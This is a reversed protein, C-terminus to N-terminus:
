VGRAESSAVVTNSLAIEMKVLNGTNTGGWANPQTVCDGLKEGQWVFRGKNTNRRTYYDYVRQAVAQGIAPSVLTADTVEVVNQKDTATVDPNTVSFVETTERYKVGDIEENGSDDQVYTHATVRVETTIAETDVTVGLFIRETGMEAPESPASFVRIGATGDTAACVGWAFLVQQIAERRSCPLIAGTLSMDEATVDLTFDEGVIEGLLEVASKNNYIGGAFTSEGLIGFADHCKIEYMRDSVRSSSEIYYVGILRDDNYAEVPQKLQFLYDVDARSDLTWNMTSVALESAILDMESVISVQRLETMGFTRYVGFLIQDLKAYRYPLNTAKLTIVVKDYSLVPHQCFYTAANPVFDVDAKLASQQYWKVNVATCHDGTAADFVLTIGPSSYQKEFSITITPPAAFIGAEDSMETSWYARTKGDRAVFSGNLGWANLEGSIIAQGAVGSALKEPTSFTQAGSTSIIAEDAAGPAVDKYNLYSKSM